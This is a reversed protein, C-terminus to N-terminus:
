FQETFFLFFKGFVIITERQVRIYFYFTSKTYLLAGMIEM